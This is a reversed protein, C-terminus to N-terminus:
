LEIIINQLGKRQWILVHLSFCNPTNYLGNTCNVGLADVVVVLFLQRRDLNAKAIACKAKLAVRDM